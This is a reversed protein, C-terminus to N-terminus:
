LSEKTNSRGDTRAPLEYWGARLGLERTDRESISALVPLALYYEVDEEVQLRSRLSEYAFVGGVSLVLGSAAGLFAFLMYRGPGPAKELSAEEIVSVSLTSSAGAGAAITTEELSKAHMRLADNSVSVARVLRDEELARAKLTEQAATAERVQGVITARRSELSALLAQAAALNKRYEESLPNLAHTERGIVDAQMEATRLEARLRSVREVAAQEATQQANALSQKLLTVHEIKEGVDAVRDTYRQRLEALAKEEAVVQKKLEIVLPEEGTKMLALRAEAAAVEAQLVAIVPNRVRERSVLVREPERGINRELAAITGKTSSIETVTHELMKQRDALTAGQQAIAAAISVAGHAERWRYLRAEHERLEQEARRYERGYLELLTRSTRNDASRAGLYSQLILRLTELASQPDSAWHTVYIVNSEHIPQGATRAILGDVMGEIEEHSKAAGDGPVIAQAVSRMVDHSRLRAIESGLVQPGVARDGQVLIKASATQDFPVAVLYALALLMCILPIVILPRHWKLLTFGIVRGVRRQDAHSIRLAAVERPLPGETMPNNESV